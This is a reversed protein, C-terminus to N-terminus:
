QLSLVGCARCKQVDHVKDCVKIAKMVLNIL